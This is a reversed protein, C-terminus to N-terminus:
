PLWAIVANMDKYVQELKGKGQIDIIYIASSNTGSNWVTTAFYQSDPSWTWGGATLRTVDTATGGETSILFIGAKSTYILYKGDPSFDHLVVEKESPALLTESGSALDFTYIQMPSIITRKDTSFDFETIEKEYFIRKGDPHWKLNWVQGSVLQHEDSGDSNMLYLGSLDKGDPLRNGYSDAEYGQSSFAIQDGNSSLEPFQAMPTQFKIEDLSGSEISYVYFIIHSGYDTYIIGSEFTLFQGNSSWTLEEFSHNDTRQSILQAEDKEPGFLYISIVQSARDYRQFALHSFDPSYVPQGTIPNVDALLPFPEATKDKLNLMFYEFYDDATTNPDSKETSFLLRGAPKPITDENSTTQSESTADTDSSSTVSDGPTILSCAAVLLSISAFSYLIKRARFKM